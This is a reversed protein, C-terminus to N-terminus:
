PPFATSINLISYEDSTLTFSSPDAQKAVLIIQDKHFRLTVDKMVYMAHKMCHHIVVSLLLIASTQYFVTYAVESAEIQLRVRNIILGGDVYLSEVIGYWIGKDSL